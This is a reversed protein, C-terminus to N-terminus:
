PAIGAGVKDCAMLGPGLRARCSARALGVMRVAALNPPTAAEKRSRWMSEDWTPGQWPPQCPHLHLSSATYMRAISIYVHQRHVPWPKVADPGDHMMSPDIEGAGKLSLTRCEGDTSTMTILYSNNPELQTM